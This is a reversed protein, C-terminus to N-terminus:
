TDRSAIRCVWGMVPDAEYGATAARAAAASMAPAVVQEGSAAVDLAADDLRLIDIGRGSDAVFVLDEYLMPTYSSTGDPRFYAVQVPNAPDRVDLVRTGQGYWSMYVLGDAMRFYHGSCNNTNANFGEETDAPHWSSVVDLRFPDEPTARWSEGGYSGDLSVIYFRGRQACGGVFNEHTAYLLEGAEYGHAAYDAGDSLWPREPRESDAVGIGSRTGPLGDIPRESNHMVAPGGLSWIEPGGGGAYPIPDWATAVRSRGLVPDHHRGSTHYGRVAGRGSVWAIGANDVQVDHAYDTIGQNRGIDIPTEYTFPKNPNRIDTVWIPRGNWDDPMDDRVAPGGSWLFQCDNICTSTHGAPVDHFTVLRLASPDRADIVYVGSESDPSDQNGSYARPDRSLFIYKRKQDVNTSESQWFTGSSDTDLMLDDSPLHDLLQPDTPDALDFTKVGFRGVAVLVDGDGYNLVNISTISNMEDLNRIFEFNKIDGPPPAEQASAPLATLVALILGMSLLLSGTTHRRRTSHAM